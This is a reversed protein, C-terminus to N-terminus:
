VSVDFLLRSVNDLSGTVDILQQALDAEIDLWSTSGYERGPSRLEESIVRVSTAGQPIEFDAVLRQSFRPADVFAVREGSQVFTLRPDDLLATIRTVTGPLARTPDAIFDQLTSRPFGTLRAIERISVPRMVSRGGAGVTRVFSRALYAKITAQAAFRAAGTLLTVM